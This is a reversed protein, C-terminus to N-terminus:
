QELPLGGNMLKGPYADDRACPLGGLYDQWYDPRPHQSQGVPRPIYRSFFRNRCWWESTGDPYVVSPGDRRHLRYRPDASPHITITDSSMTLPLTVMVTM